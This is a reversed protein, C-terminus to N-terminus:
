FLFEPPLRTAVRYFESLDKLHLGTKLWPDNVYLRYSRFRIDMRSFLHYSLVRKNTENLRCLLTAFSREAPKPVVLWCPGKRKQRSLFRCLLVSVMFTGDILLMSRQRNPLNTVAVHNPFMDKLRSVLQRRLRMSGEADSNGFSDQEPLCYGAARYADRYNAFRNRLTTATPANQARLILTESLRGKAALLRRLRKLIKETPWALDSRRTQATQACDFTKQDVISPFAGRRAIWNQSNVLTRRQRLRLTSRQWVNWGAYKPNMLTNVVTAQGWPRGNRTTGTANLRRAIETSGIGEAAMAFLKKIAQVEDQPGLVLIVRDTTLSKYEGDKLIIKPKGDTSVMLRRYGYGPPGGVWFGLEVLRIKGRLVKEGLERSFEAAMSRKLAKLLSSTATGDNAFQEACYHLPIGSSACLFEYHAAEDNNPFRGWRSVDYVLIAKYSATGSVVDKLLERLATRNRAIVGSKGADSYTKTIVFGHQAAYEQIAAKQNDISYQQAENSM